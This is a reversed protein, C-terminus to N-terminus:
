QLSGQRTHPACNMNPERMADSLHSLNCCRQHPWVSCFAPVPVAPSWTGPIQEPFGTSVGGSRGVPAPDRTPIRQGRSTGPESVFTWPRVTSGANCPLGRSMEFQHHKKVWKELAHVVSKPVSCAEGSFCLRTRFRVTPCLFHPCLALTVCARTLGRCLCQRVQARVTQWSGWTFLAPSCLFIARRFM